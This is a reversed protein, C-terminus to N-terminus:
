SAMAKLKFGAGAPPEPPSAPAPQEAGEGLSELALARIAKLADQPKPNKIDTVGAAEAILRLAARAETLAAIAGQVDAHAQQVPALLTRTAVVWSLQSANRQSLEALDKDSLM